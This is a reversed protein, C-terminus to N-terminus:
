PNKDRLFLIRLEYGTPREKVYFYYELACYFIGCVCVCLCVCVCVCGCVCVCLQTKERREGLNLDFGPSAAFRSVIQLCGM